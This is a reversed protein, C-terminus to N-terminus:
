VVLTFTAGRDTEGHALVTGGHRTAIRMVTALGIGTGPFEDEHHLRRFPAFLKDAHAPDFGLGNDRVFVATRGPHDPPPDCSGVEIVAPDRPATFKWANGLLNELAVTILVRDGTVRLDPEVSVRVSRDPEAERLKAMVEDVLPGLEVATMSLTRRGIRSLHLLADILEAMHRVNGRVRALLHRGRDDLVTDYESELLACFGDMRRLPARLDHSVSYSFAELERTTEELSRTRERLDETSEAVLRDLRQMERVLARSRVWVIALVLLSLGGLYGLYAPWTRYWPPAITFPFAAETSQKRYVNRARVRFRYSGEPLNTYEKKTDAAWESWGSDFGELRCSYRNLLQEDFSPAAFEFSLSNEQYPLVVSASGTGAGGYVARGSGTVASRILAGYEPVGTAERRADYHLLGASGGLWATGDSAPLFALVNITQTRAM